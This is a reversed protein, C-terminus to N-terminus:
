QERTVGVILGSNGFVIAGVLKPLGASTQWVTELVGAEKSGALCGLCDSRTRYAGNRGHSSKRCANM